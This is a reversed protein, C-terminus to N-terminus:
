QLVVTQGAELGKTIEVETSATLGTEVDVERLKTGDELIRVFYRGFNNRLGGKPIKVVNEKQQTVIEVNASGGIEVSGPIKDLDIFLTKAYKEALDKNMTQPSSSPTQVVKGVLKTGEKLEVNAAMGVEATSIESSNDVRMALHLKTPDAVTVLTQYADVMDGPQLDEVFVVQGDIDAVLQKSKYLEQMRDYKIQEVEVQLKAIRVEEADRGGQQAQKLGYKARELSLEQEKLQLDLGDTVLKILVDGKKVKDGASVLIEGIRGGQGKFMAVDTSVSEWTATGQISKTITGKEAKVTNYNEQAPKVLPPALAEDEKPLLSCGSLAAALSVASVLVVWRKITQSM